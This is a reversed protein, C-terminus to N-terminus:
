DRNKKRGRREKAAIRKKREANATKTDLPWRIEKGAALV